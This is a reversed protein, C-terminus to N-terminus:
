VFLLTSQETISGFFYRNKAERLAAFRPLLADPEPALPHQEYVDLDLIVPVIEPNTSTERVTQIITAAIRSHPEQIQVQTLFGTVFAHSSASFRPPSTLFSSFDGVESAPLPLRNIYRVAIRSVEEPKAAAFFLRYLRSAEDFVHDWSTYPSLRSFTFGDKRFQVIQLGDSSEFRLGFTHLPASETPPPLEFESFLTNSIKAYGIQGALAVFIDSDFDPKLNTRIDIVAEIIPANPLHRMEHMDFM